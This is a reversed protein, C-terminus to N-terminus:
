KKLERKCECVLANLAKKLEGKLTLGSAKIHGGGNFRHAINAVNVDDSTTRLSVNWSNRKESDENINISIKVNKVNQLYTVIFKSEDHKCNAKEYDEKKLISVAIKGKEFFQVSNIALKTLEFNETDAVGFCNFFMSNTDPALKKLESLCKFTKSNASDYFFCGTDMYIGSYLLSAIAKDFKVVDKFLWFLCECASSMKAVYNFKCFKTNDEYHHDIQFSLNIKDFIERCNDSLRKYTSCDLVIAMDFNEKTETEFKINPVFKLINSSLEKEIFIHAEKGMKQLIYYMAVSSCISDHDSRMHSFIAIKNSSKISNLINEKFKIM